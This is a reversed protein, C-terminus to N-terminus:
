QGAPASPVQSTAAPPVTSGHSTPAGSTVHLSGSTTAHVTGTGPQLAPVALSTSEDDGVWRAVPAQTSGRSASATTVTSSTGATSAAYGAFGLSGLVGALVVASRVRRGRRINSDRRRSTDEPEAV